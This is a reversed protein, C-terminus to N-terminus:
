QLIFGPSLQGSGGKRVGEEFSKKAREKVNEELASMGELVKEMEDNDLDGTQRLKEM